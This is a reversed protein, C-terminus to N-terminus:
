YLSFSLLHFLTYFSSVRRAGNKGGRVGARILASYTFVNPILGKSIMEDFTDFALLWNDGHINQGIAQIYATYTYATPRILTNDGSTQSWNFAFSAEYLYGRKGAITIVTTVIHANPIKSSSEVLKRFTLFVVKFLEDDRGLVQFKKNLTRAALEDSNAANDSYERALFQAYSEHESTIGTADLSSSSLPVHKKLFPSFKGKQKRGCRRHLLINKSSSNLLHFAYCCTTIM